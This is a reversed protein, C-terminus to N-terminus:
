LFPLSSSLVLTHFLRPFGLKGRRYHANRNICLLQIPAGTGAVVANQTTHLGSGQEEWKKKM